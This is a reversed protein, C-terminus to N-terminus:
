DIAWGADLLNDIDAFEHEVHDKSSRLRLQGGILDDVAITGYGMTKHKFHLTGAPSVRMEEIAERTQEQLTKSWPQPKTDMMKELVSKTASDVFGLAELRPLLSPNKAAMEICESYVTSRPDDIAIGTELLLHIRSVMMDFADCTVAYVESLLNNDPVKGDIPVSVDFLINGKDTRSWRGLRLRENTRLLYSDIKDGYPSASIMEATVFPDAYWALVTDDCLSFIVSDYRNFKNIEFGIYSNGSGGHDTEINRSTKLWDDIHQLITNM